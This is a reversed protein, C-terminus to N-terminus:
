KNEIECGVLFSIMRTLETKDVSSGMSRAPPCHLPCEGNQCKKVFTAVKESLLSRCKQCFYRCKRVFYRCKRVVTPLMESLLSRCKKVVTLSMRGYCFQQCCHHVFNDVVTTLFIDSSKDLFSFNDSLKTFSKANQRSINVFTAVNESLLLRRASKDVKQISLSM